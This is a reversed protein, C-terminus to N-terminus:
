HHDNVPRHVAFQGFLFLLSVGKCLEIFNNVTLAIMIMFMMLIIIMMILLIIIVELDNIIVQFVKITLWFLDIM